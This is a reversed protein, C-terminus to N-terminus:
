LMESSVTASLVATIKQRKEPLRLCSRPSRSSLTPAAFPFIEKSEGRARSERKLNAECKGRNASQVVGFSLAQEAPIDQSWM